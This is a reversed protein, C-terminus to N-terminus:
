GDARQRIVRLRQLLDNEVKGMLSVLARFLVEPLDDFWEAQKPHPTLDSIQWPKVTSAIYRAAKEAAVQKRKM